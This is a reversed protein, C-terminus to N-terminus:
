SAPPCDYFTSLYGISCKVNTATHVEVMNNGIADEQISFTEVCFLMRDNPQKESMASGHKIWLNRLEKNLSSSLPLSCIDSNECM